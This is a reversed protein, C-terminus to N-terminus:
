HTGKTAATQAFLDDYFPLLKDCAKTWRDPDRQKLYQLAARIQERQGRFREVLHDLREGQEANGALLHIVDVLEPGIVIPANDASALLTLQEASSEAGRLTLSLADLRELPTLVEYTRGGKVRGKRLLPPKHGTLDSVEFVGRTVKSISDVSIERKDCLALLWVQSFADTNELESPLPTERSVIQEVMMRIDKLAGPEGETTSNLPFPKGNWDVVAGYHRSYVELCKGILVMRVDPPSLPQGGYRGAEIRAIEEKAQQRVQQRLGAWSKKARTDALRRKRCVHILDYSIAEKDMLHLSSEGESHVPYIAEVNFGAALVADLLAQWASDEAHHFTFTLIGEDKLVRHSERFVEMLDNGFEADGKGRYKNKIVEDQTPIRDPLFQPYHDKLGLRQWVYYFEALEAYNVNDSYPPDTIILDASADPVNTLKKSSQAFLRVAQSELGNRYLSDSAKETRTRKGNIATYIVDTTDAAFGVGNRSQWYRRLFSGMGGAGLGWVNQECVTAKPQFDHRAFVGQVTQGGASPRTAMYRSFLNNTDTSASLCLILQERGRDDQERLVGELLTALALLQRSNFMQHWYRYHHEHLRDTEQGAPIENKPYPLGDRLKQWLKEANSCLAQDVPLHRAYFKGSQKWVLNKTPPVFPGSYTADPQGTEEGDEEEEPERNGGFLESHRGGLKDPDNGPDCGAAYAQLGYAHIPLLQDAPLSRISEIIADNNGCHPCVFRGKETVHGVHPKFTFGAPSTVLVDEAIEGRWQFLDETQPCLLVTLPVKKRKKKKTTLRPRVIENCQPCSVQGADLTGSKVQHQRLIHAPERSSETVKGGNKWIPKGQCVYIGGDEHAYTWRSNSRGVGGSYANGHYMLHPDAILAAPEVEWDFDAGCKPCKCDPYYRISPSKAALVYDSFLPVQKRCTPNTCIGSKAWFTYIIDSNPLGCVEEATWPPATKYLDLLTQRLPRGSWPVIRNALREFAEDLEKLDVPEVETKVIFWAVPNLDIGVVKCGLRLAEVVTTGGGMFPDLVVKGNTDPDHSHDKYFEEMINTGAPKLAGLLIGRFVSSARRAFWKHMQYIPKFANREPAALRNIEVIPFDEEIARKM